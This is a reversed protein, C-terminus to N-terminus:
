ASRKREQPTLKVTLREGGRLLDFAVERNITDSTLVRVLDDAGTLPAGDLSLLIDGVKMGALAAPSVPEITTVMVASDQALGSFHRRRRSIAAHQAAIGIYGRRVRGHRVLEGLVFSATNAAVAFCIGQAGMIVATNVGVVEGRSSVLPGGSNGPNLAADTQIVDDILRGNRSRLSRGLASVVGSTVTSEFGLPYGFAIVL